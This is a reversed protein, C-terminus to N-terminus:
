GEFVEQVWEDYGNMELWRLVDEMSKRKFDMERGGLLDCVYVPEIPFTDSDLLQLQHSQRARTINNLQPLM